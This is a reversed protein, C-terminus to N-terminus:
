LSSVSWALAVAFFIPTSSLEDWEEARSTRFYLIFSPLGLLSSGPWSPQFTVVSSQSRALHFTSIGTPSRLWPPDDSCCTRSPYVLDFKNWLEITKGMFICFNHGSSFWLCTVRVTDTAYAHGPVTSESTRITRLVAWTLVSGFYIPLFGVLRENELIKKSSVCFEFGCRKRMNSAAIVARWHRCALFTRHEECLCEFMRSTQGPATPSLTVLRLMECSTNVESSCQLQCITHSSLEKERPRGNATARIEKVQFVVRQQKLM